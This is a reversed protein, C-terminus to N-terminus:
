AGAVATIGALTPVYVRNGALTPSAFRSTRGVAIRSRVAGDRQDLAWLTGGSLAWVAGGGVAPSGPIGAATWGWALAPGPRVLLERVGGTCPLYVADGAAAMGGFSVCGSASAAPHGIGGLSGPLLLYAHGSKGDILVGGRPLTASAPLLLPGTSGLDLDEANDAAWSAEAFWSRVALSASLEVVSDSGDYGSTSSGNGVGVYIDGAADVAPGSAAWIGAERPSATRYYRLTAGTAAPVTVVYGHYDGCDGYLGGFTVVVNGGSLGLAGRQQEATPDSGPPDVPRHWRVEGSRAALSWLVHRVPGATGGTEAVLYVSGTAPDYVPTSTVGEPDIDGCPLRAAPVPRGVAVRWRVRGTAPDLAYVTDRETAALLLGDVLLPQGYVPGLAASWATRLSSVPPADPQFGARDPTRHYGPWLAPAAPAPSPVAATVPTRTAPRGASGACGAALLLLTAVGALRRGVTGDEAAARRPSLRAM